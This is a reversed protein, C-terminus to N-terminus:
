ASLTVVIPERATYPFRARRLSCIDGFVTVIPFCANAHQSFRSLMSDNIFSLIKDETSLADSDIYEFM